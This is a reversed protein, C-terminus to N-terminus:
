ELRLAEILNGRVTCAAALACSALGVVIIGLLLTALVTWNIASEVSALQPAVAALAALTGVAVGAVLLGVNEALLLTALTPRRFGTALMLAFEGRRELANRLLVVVLGVTGLLVGLGGLALFTMLYTNQVGALDNLIAKTGRVEMGLDGLTRRLSAALADASASPAGILFYRPASESPFMRRFHEEAVLLESAFISASVLGALRLKAPTGSEDPVVVEDALGKHLQWMATESDAFVPIGNATNELLVNWPNKATNRYSTKVSFGGRAIMQHSVGLVRPAPPAAINLCSIDGGNRLLFPIVSAPLAAGGPAQVAHVNADADYVPVGMQRLMRAATSKGMGISGTLGVIMM